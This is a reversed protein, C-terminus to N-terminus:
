RFYTSKWQTKNFNQDTKLKECIKFTDFYSIYFYFLIYIQITYIQCYLLM